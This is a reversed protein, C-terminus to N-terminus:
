IHFIGFGCVLLVPLRDLLNSGAALFHFLFQANIDTCDCSIIDM